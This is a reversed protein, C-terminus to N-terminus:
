VAVTIGVVSIGSQSSKIHIYLFSFSFLFFFSDLKANKGERNM